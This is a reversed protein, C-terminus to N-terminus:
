YSVILLDKPVQKVNIGTYKRVRVAGCIHRRAYIEESSQADLILLRQGELMKQYVYTAEIRPVKPFHTVGWNEINKETLPPIGYLSWIDAANGIRQVMLSFIMVGLLVGCGFGLTGMWHTMRCFRMTWAIM